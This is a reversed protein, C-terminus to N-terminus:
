ALTALPLAAVEAVLAALQAAYHELLAAGREADARAANGCVGSAHLDGALWGIGIPKEVGLLSGADAALRQPLGVFDQAAELRVLEPKLHLMLSTELEGGHLGLAAERSAFLGAPVGFAFYSARAVLMGCEARLKLAVLDVVAKQGGHTNFIVLKRVGAAAVGRGIETWLEILTEARASLTGSFRTHELSAGVELPPLVLATITRPIRPLAARLIGENIFADTGLPLHPGHQEVAAVPLVAVTSEADVAAFDTTALDCWFGSTLRAKRDNEV